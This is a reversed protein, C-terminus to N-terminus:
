AVLGEFIDELIQEFGVIERNVFVRRVIIFDCNVWLHKTANELREDQLPLLAFSASLRDPMVSATMVRGTGDDMINASIRQSGPEFILWRKGPFVICASADVLKKLQIGRIADVFLHPLM